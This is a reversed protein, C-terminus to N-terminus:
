KKTWKRLGSQKEELSKKLIKELTIQEGILINLTKEVEGDSLLKFVSDYDFVSDFKLEGLNKKLINLGIEEVSLKQERLNRLFEIKKTIEPEELEKAFNIIANGSYKREIDRLEQDIVEAEKGIVKLKILPSKVFDKALIDKIKREILERAPTDGLKIEEYFFRRNKELKKFNTKVDKDIEVEFYGKKVLAENPELQTVITSGPFLLISNGIREQGSIHLHGDVIMDFEKPLNSLNLTPPELPSYIYPEISQHLLLINFCNETPKPDWKYLVDKAYREPVGSMGHIAVRVGDKEFIISDCHLHILIGANELAQIANIEGRGRREHTGHIAIVPLHKLTRKSIEKLEKSCKVLKVKSEKLLPKVLIKIARAWVGTKPVRSDFIDGTILILDSDLAKKVAEEANNFSDNELESNYAYGFHFDSLIAIKM